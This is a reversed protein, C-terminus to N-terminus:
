IGMDSYRVGHRLLPYDTDRAAQYGWCQSDLDPGGTERVCTADVGMLAWSTALGFFLRVQEVTHELQITNIWKYDRPDGVYDVHYYVGAGGSRATENALPLRRINGWNDDAWLLTVHDPVTLGLKEYYGQVEKYLCWMQPIDTVNTGNFVEGLIRVQSAIVNELVAVAQPDTLGIATDGSGRMAMTFLSSAAYPKARQAGYTFFKDLSANNSNYAWQGNGGYQKGFNNWENTARM